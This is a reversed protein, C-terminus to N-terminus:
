MGISFYVTSCYVQRGTFYDASDVETCTRRYQDDAVAVGDAQQKQNITLALTDHITAVWECDIQQVKIATTM